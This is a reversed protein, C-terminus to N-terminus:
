SCVCGAESDVGDAQVCNHMQGPGALWAACKYTYVDLGLEARTPKGQVWRVVSGNCLLKAVCAVIAVRGEERGWRYRIVRAARPGQPVLGYWGRRREGRQARGPRGALVGVVFLGVAQELYLRSVGKTQWM